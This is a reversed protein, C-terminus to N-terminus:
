NRYAGTFPGLYCITASSLLVDGIFKEYELELEEVQEAWRNGEDALLDTLKNANKM